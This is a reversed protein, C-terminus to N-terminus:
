DDEGFIEEYRRARVTLGEAAWPALAAYFGRDYKRTRVMMPM